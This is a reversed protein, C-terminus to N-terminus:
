WGKRHVRSGAVCALFNDDLCFGEKDPNRYCMSPCQLFPDPDGLRVEDSGFHSWRTIRNSERIYANQEFNILQWNDIVMNAHSALAAFWMNPNVSANAFMYYWFLHCHSLTVICRSLCEYDNPYEQSSFCKYHNCILM